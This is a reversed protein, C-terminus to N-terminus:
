DYTIVVDGWYPDRPKPPPEIRRAGIPVGNVHMTAGVRECRCQAIWAERKALNMEWFEPSMKQTM